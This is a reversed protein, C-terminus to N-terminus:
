NLSGPSGPRIRADRGGGKLVPLWVTFHSGQGLGPSDAEVTGGHLEVLHRVIALGLGLGGHARSPSPDEQAFRKFVHPLFEPAIGRGTDRVTIQIQSGGGQVKVEVCGGAPTFKIANAVLNGVVQQLRGPDGSTAGTRPDLVTELTVNKEVAAPRMTDLVGAVLPVLDVRQWEIHLQGAVIRSVDLLDDVLQTLLQANRQIVEAAHHAVEPDGRKTDLVSGWGAIANLPSRLEHSLMALFEDKARNAAEAEHRATREGEHLRAHDIVLAVRDAVLRL